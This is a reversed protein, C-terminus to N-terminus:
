GNKEAEMFDTIHEQHENYYQLIDLVSIEHFKTDILMITIIPLKVLERVLPDTIQNKELQKRIKYESNYLKFADLLVEKQHDTLEIENMRCLEVIYHIIFHKYKLLKRSHLNVGWRIYRRRNCARRRPRLYRGEYYRIKTLSIKDGKLKRFRYERSKTHKLIKRAWEPIDKIHIGQDKFDLKLDNKKIFIDFNYLKPSHLERRRQQQILKDRVSTQKQFHRTGIEVIKEPNNKLVLYKQIFRDYYPLEYGTGDTCNLIERVNKKKQKAKSIALDFWLRWEGITIYGEAYFEKIHEPDVFELFGCYAKYEIEIDLDTENIISLYERYIKFETLTLKRPFEISESDPLPEFKNYVKWWTSQCDGCMPFGIFTNAMNKNNVEDKCFLCDM